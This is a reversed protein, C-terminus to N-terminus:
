SHNDDGMEYLCLPLIQYLIHPPQKHQNSFSLEVIPTGNNTNTIHAIHTMQIQMRNKLKITTAVTNQKM